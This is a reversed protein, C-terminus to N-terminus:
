CGTLDNFIGMVVANDNLSLKAGECSNLILYLYRSLIGGVCAGLVNLFKNLACTAVRQCNGDAGRVACVLELGASVGLQAKVNKLFNFLTQGSEGNNEVAGAGNRLFEYFDDIFVAAVHRAGDANGLILEALCGGHCDALYINVGVQTKCHGCGDTLIEILMGLM